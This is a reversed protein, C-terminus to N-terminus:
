WSESIEKANFPLSIGTLEAKKRSINKRLAVNGHCLGWGILGVAAEGACRNIHWM